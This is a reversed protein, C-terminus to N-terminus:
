ESDWLIVVLKGPGHVGVTLSLEIDATRSPGTIFVTNSSASVTGAPSDLADLYNQLNPYIDRASLLAVHVEPLLSMPAPQGPLNQLVLTGSDALGAQAGTIGVPAHSLTTIEGSTLLSVGAQQLAETLGPHERLTREWVLAQKWGYEAFLDVVTRRADQRTQARIVRGSLKELEITFREAGGEQTAFALVPHEAAAGPLLGVRLGSRLRRLIEERAENM